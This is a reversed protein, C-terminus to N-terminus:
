LSMLLVVHWGEEWALAVGLGAAQVGQAYYADDDDANENEAGDGVHDESPAALALV